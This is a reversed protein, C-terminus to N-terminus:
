VNAYGERKQRFDAGSRHLGPSWSSGLLWSLCCTNALVNCGYSNDQWLSGDIGAPFFFIERHNHKSDYDFSLAGVVTEQERAWYLAAVSDMGGSCLVVVKMGCADTSLPESVLLILLGRNQM